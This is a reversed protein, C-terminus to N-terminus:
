ALHQSPHTPMNTPTLSMTQLANMALAIVYQPIHWSHCIPDLRWNLQQEMRCILYGPGWMKVHCHWEVSVHRRVSGLTSTIPHGDSDVSRLWMQSSSPIWHRRSGIFTDEYTNSNVYYGPAVCGVSMVANWAALLVISTFQVNLIGDSDRGTFIFVNNDLIVNEQNM